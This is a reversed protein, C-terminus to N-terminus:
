LNVARFCYDKNLMLLLFRISLVEEVGSVDHSSWWSLTPWRNQYSHFIENAESCLDADKSYIALLKLNRVGTFTYM